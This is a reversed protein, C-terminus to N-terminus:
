PASESGSQSSGRGRGRGGTSSGRQPGSQAPAAGEGGRESGQAAGHQGADQPASAERAHGMVAAFLRSVYDAHATRVASGAHPALQHVADAFIARAASVGMSRCREFSAAGSSGLPPRPDTPYTPAAAPIDPPESGTGKACVYVFDGTPAGEDVDAYHIRGTVVHQPCLGDARRTRPAMGILEIRVGFDIQCRQILLGLKAFSSGGTCNADVAVVYRCRRRILEYVGLSEFESGGTLYVFEGGANDLGFSTAAPMDGYLPGAAGWGDKKPKEIWSGSRASLVTLFTRLLRSPQPERASGALAAVRGLWLNRDVVGSRAANDTPAYGLSTSGCFLPSLAFSEEGVSQEGALDDATAHMTTNFLLQPGWYVPMDGIRRGICLARLELDGVPDVGDSSDLNGRVIAQEAALGSLSPAGTIVRQDRPLGWRPRWAAAPVSAAVYARALWDADIAGLSFLNVDIRRRALVYLVALIVALVFLKLFSTGVIGQVYYAFPGSEDGGPASLSPMNAFLSVLLGSAGLLGILFLWGAINALAVLWGRRGSEDGQALRRAAFLGCGAAALWGLGIVVRTVGGAAYVVGPLYFVIALAGAWCLARKTMLTGVEVWWGREADSAARGILAVEVIMAALVVFLALAPVFLAVLDPRGVHLFHQFLGELFVLLVGATMGGVMAASTITRRRTVSEGRACRAGTWAAIGGIIVVHALFNPWSLVTLKPLIVEVLTRFSFLGSTNPGLWMRMILAAVWTVIPPVCFSLLLSAILLPTVIRRKITGARGDTTPPLGAGTHCSRFARLASAISTFAVSLAVLAAVLLLGLAGVGAVLVPTGLRQDVAGAAESIETLGNFFGYLSVVLRAGIAILILLPVLVLGHILVNGLWRTASTWSGTPAFTGGAGPAGAQSRLHWLPQPENDVVEGPALYQRSARAEAIRNPDLQHEVSEPDDGARKLWAGLWAAAPSGASVASLYDFRRILGLSGLGQLFGVSFAAGNPGGGSLALGTTNERIARERAAQTREDVGPPEARTHRDSAAEAASSPQAGGQEARNEDESRAEGLHRRREDILDLERELVHWFGSPDDGWNPPLFTPDPDTVQPERPVVGNLQHRIASLKTYVFRRVLNIQGEPKHAVIAHWPTFSLNEGFAMRGPTDFVQKPVWIWGVTHFPAADESWEVTPNEIPTTANDRFLQVKFLFVAGRVSLTRGIAERLYDPSGERAKPVLTEMAIAPRLFDTLAEYSDDAPGEAATGGPFDAPVVSFKACANGFGYPTTSWYRTTLPNAIRKSAFRILRVFLFFRRPTLSLLVLTAFSRLPGSLFLGLFSYVSSPEKGKAKLLVGSFDKYSLADRVIFTPNDCLVFDQTTADEEAELVKPGDVGMLKIAMGHADPKRDDFHAGNSFRIWAKFVRPEEFLGKRYREDLNKGVVFLARLCGTQKPHQDRHVPRTNTDLLKRSAEIVYDIAERVEYEHAASEPM